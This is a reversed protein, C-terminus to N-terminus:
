RDVSASVGEGEGLVLCLCPSAFRLPLNSVQGVCPIGRCTMVFMGNMRYMWTFEGRWCSGLRVMRRGWIM